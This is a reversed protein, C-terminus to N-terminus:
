SNSLHRELFEGPTMIEPMEVEVGLFDKGGTIFIDINEIIATYLVPYDNIDRFILFIERCIAHRIFLSM